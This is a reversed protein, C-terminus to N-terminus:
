SGNKINKPQRTVEHYLMSFLVSYYAVVVALTVNNGLRSKFCSDYKM